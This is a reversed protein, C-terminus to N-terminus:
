VSRQHVRLCPRTGPRTGAARPAPTKPHVAPRPRRGGTTRQRESCPGGRAKDGGQGKVHARHWSVLPLRFNTQCFSKALWVPRTGFFVEGSLKSERGTHLALPPSFVRRFILILIGSKPVCIILVRNKQPKKSFLFIDHPM